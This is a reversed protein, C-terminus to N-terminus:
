LSENAEESDLLDEQFFPVRGDREAAAVKAELKDELESDEEEFISEDPIPEAYSTSSFDQRYNATLAQLEEEPINAIKALFNRILRLEDRIEQLIIIWKFM